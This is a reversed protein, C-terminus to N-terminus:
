LFSVPTFKEGCSKKFIVVGFQGNTDRAMMLFNTFSWPAGIVM